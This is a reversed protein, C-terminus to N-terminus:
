VLLVDEPAVKVGPVWTQKAMELVPEVKQVMLHVEVEPAVKQAM